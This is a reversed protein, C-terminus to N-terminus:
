PLVHKIKLLGFTKVRDNLMRSSTSGLELLRMNNHEQFLINFIM